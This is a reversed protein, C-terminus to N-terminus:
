GEAPAEDTDGDRSGDHPDAGSRELDDAVAAKFRVALAKLQADLDPYALGSHALRDAEDGIEKVQEKGTKSLHTGRDANVAYQYAYAFAGCSTCETNVAVAANTPRVDSPHGTMIIAQYAVAIGECGTCGSPQALALNTSTVSDAGTSDVKVATRYIKAGDTTPSAKVVNNPGGAIAPFALALTFTTVLAAIRRM